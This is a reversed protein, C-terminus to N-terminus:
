IVLPTPHNQLKEDRLPSVNYRHPRFKTHLLEDFQDFTSDEVGFKVGWRHLSPITPGLFQFIKACYKRIYVDQLSADM